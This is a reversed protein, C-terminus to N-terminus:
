SATQALLVILFIGVSNLVFTLLLFQWGRVQSAGLLGIGAEDPLPSAIIAAGVIPLLWAFYPTHFLQGLQTRGIKFFIPKLEDFVKDQLYRFILYDGCMAGIGAFLAVEWPNLVDALRFLIVAAPAATFVSVFFIGTLFAGLYGWGSVQSVARQVPHTDIILWLILFSLILLTTNKYPWNRYRRPDLDIHM